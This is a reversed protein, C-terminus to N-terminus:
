QNSWLIENEVVYNPTHKYAIDRPLLEWEGNNYMIIDEPAKGFAKFDAFTFKSNEVFAAYDEETGLFFATKFYEDTPQVKFIYAYIDNTIEEEDDYEGLYNYSTDIWDGSDLVVEENAYMERLKQEAEIYSNASITIVKALVEAVEIEYKKM